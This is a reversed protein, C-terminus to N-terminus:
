AKKFDIKDYSIVKSTGNGIEYWVKNACKIYTFDKSFAMCVNYTINQSKNM